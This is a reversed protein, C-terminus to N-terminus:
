SGDVEFEIWLCGESRLSVRACVSGCCIFSWAMLMGVKRELSWRRREPAFLDNEDGSCVLGSSIVVVEDWTEGDWGGVVRAGRM